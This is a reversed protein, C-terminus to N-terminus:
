TYWQINNVCYKFDFRSFNIKVRVKNKFTHLFIAWSGKVQKVFHNWLRVTERPVFLVCVCVCQLKSGFKEKM